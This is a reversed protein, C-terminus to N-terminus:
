GECICCNHRCRPSLLVTDFAVISVTQQLSHSSPVSLVGANLSPIHGCRSMGPAVIARRLSDVLALSIAVIVSILQVMYRSTKGTGIRDSPM